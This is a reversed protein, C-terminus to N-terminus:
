KKIASSNEKVIKTVANQRTEVTHHRMKPRPAILPILITAKKKTRKQVAKPKQAIVPKQASKKQQSFKLQTIKEALIQGRIRNRYMVLGDLAHYLASCEASQDSFKILDDAMSEVGRRVWKENLQKDPLAVMLFELVHGSSALRTEFDRSHKQSRFFDVSFSGDNNQNAKSLQVFRKIKQEVELWYGSNRKGAKRRMKLAYSLGFMAHTGGCAAEHISQDMEVRALKELSWMEGYKNEWQAEPKLYHALAWLTWACEEEGSVISQTNKVIDRVTIAGDPTEIKSDIPINAVAMIALFQNPHGEFAYPVNYPHARGGFRTKQFWHEAEQNPGSKYKPNKKIWDWANVLKKDVRIKYDLRLALLGHMIQWPTHVEGTLIRQESIDIAEEVRKLLNDKKSDTNNTKAADWRPGDDWANSDTETSLVFAVTVVIGFFLRGIKGPSSLNMLQM